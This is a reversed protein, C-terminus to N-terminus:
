GCGSITRVKKRINRESVPVVSASVVFPGPQQIGLLDPGEKM